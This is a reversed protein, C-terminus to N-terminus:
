TRRKRRPRVAALGMVNKMGAVDGVVMPVQVGREMMRGFMEFAAAERAERTTAADKAVKGLGEEKWVMDVRWARELDLLLQNRPTVSGAEDMDARKLARARYRTIYSPQSRDFLAWIKPPISSPRTLQPYHVVEDAQKVTDESQESQDEATDYPVFTATMDAASGTQNSSLGKDVGVVFKGALSSWPTKESAQSDDAGDKAVRKALSWDVLHQMKYSVEGYACAHRWVVRAVNYYHRKWALAFLIALTIRDPRIAYNEGASRGIPAPAREPPEGTSPRPPMFMRLYVLASHLNADRLASTLALHLTSANAGQRGKTRALAEFRRIVVFADEIKGREFLVRVVKNVFRVSFWAAREGFSGECANLFDDTNRGLSLHAAIARDANGAAVAKVTDINAFFGKSRMKETVVTAELPFRRSVLLHFATWTRSTPRMGKSLMLRLTYLFNPASEERAAADFFIDFDSATFTYEREELTAFIKRLAPFDNHKVLFRCAKELSSSSVFPSSYHGTLVRVLEDRMDDFYVRDPPPKEAAYVKRRVLASPPTTLADVYASLTLENWHKPRSTINVISPAWVARIPAPSRTPAQTIDDLTDELLKTEIDDLEEQERWYAHDTSDKGDEGFIALSSTPDEVVESKLGSILALKDEADVPEVYRPLLSRAHENQSRTGWLSVGNFRGLMGAGLVAQVHAGTKQMIELIVEGAPKTWSAQMKGPLSVTEMRRKHRSEGDPTAQDLLDLASRWDRAGQVGYKDRQYGYRKVQKLLRRQVTGQYAGFYRPRLDGAAKSQPWRSAKYDVPSAIANQM